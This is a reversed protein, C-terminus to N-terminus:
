AGAVQAIVYPLLDKAPFRKAVVLGVSIAPNFHSGSIHSLAYIGTIVTLGFALAVGLHGVGFPVAAGLVATGCGGLVLWFTGLFEAAARNTISMALWGRGLSAFVRASARETFRLRDLSVGRRRLNCHLGRAELSLHRATGKM